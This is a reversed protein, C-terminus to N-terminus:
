RAHPLLAWREADHAPVIILNPDRKHLRHLHALQKRVVEGDVDALTRTLWPREAPLTFGEQQWALDGILAFRPGSPPTLFAIISGPTHGGAPVIVVSGDSFVDYSRPFGLHPGDKFDFLRVTVGSFSRMLESAPGGTHVFTSEEQSLWVPVGPMDPVGSIHDWHVHTPVIGALSRWAIGAGQLQDAVPTGFNFKSSGRALWPLGAVQAKADRGFGTDFLLTGSPHQVIVGGMAFTREELFSGGRFAFAARSIMSGADFALIRMGAPPSAPRAPELSLTEDIAIPAATFTWGLLGLLGVVVALLVLLKKKM